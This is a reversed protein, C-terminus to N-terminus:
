RELESENEQDSRKSAQTRHKDPSSAVVPRVREKEVSKAINEHVRNLVTQKEAITLDSSNVKAQIAAEAARVQGAELTQSTSELRNPRERSARDSNRSEPAVHGMVQPSAHEVHSSRNAQVSISEPSTETNSQGAKDRQRDTSGSATSKDGDQPSDARVSDRNPISQDKQPLADGLGANRARHLLVSGRENERLAAEYENRADANASIMTAALRRDAPDKIRLYDEVDRRVWQDAQLRGDRGDVRRRAIASVGDEAGSAPQNTITPSDM